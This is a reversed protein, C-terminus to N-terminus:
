KVSSLGGIGYIRVANNHLMDAVSQRLVARAVPPKGSRQPLVESLLERTFMASGTAMEAPTAHHGCTIKHGPVYNWWRSIADRFYEPNLTPQWCTDIFMNPFQRALWGCEDLFPWCHIMVLKM